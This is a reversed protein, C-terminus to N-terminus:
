LCKQDFSGNSQLTNQYVDSSTYKNLHFKLQASSQIQQDHDKGLICVHSCLSPFCSPPLFRLVYLYINVCWIHDNRTMEASSCTCTHSYSHLPLYIHNNTDVDTLIHTATQLLIEYKHCLSKFISHFISSNMKQCGPSPTQVSDFYQSHTIHVDQALFTHGIYVNSNIWTEKTENTYM